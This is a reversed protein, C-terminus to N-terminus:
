KLYNQKIKNIILELRWVPLALRENAFDRGYLLQPHNELKTFSM